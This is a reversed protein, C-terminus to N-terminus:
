QWGEVPSLRCLIMELITTDLQPTVSVGFARKMGDCVATRNMGEYQDIMQLLMTIKNHLAVTDQRNADQFLLTSTGWGRGVLLAKQDVQVRDIIRTLRASDHGFKSTLAWGTAVMPDEAKPEQTFLMSSGLVGCALFLPVLVYRLRFHSLGVIAYMAVFPLIYSFHRYAIFSKRHTGDYFFPSMAYLAMFTVIIFFATAVGQKSARMVRMILLCAFGIFVLRLWLNQLWGSPAITNSRLLTSRPFTETWVEWFHESPKLESLSLGFGRITTNEYGALHFGADAYTRVLVHLGLVLALSAVAYAWQQLPKRHWCLSLFYVPILVVNAYSFWLALGLFAGNLLFHRPSSRDKSLILLLLFPFVSSISHLGFNVTGWPILSPLAFITWVSFALAIRPAFVKKVVHMQVLRVVFDLILASIALSNANTFLKIVLSMWSIPITGGEHPYHILQDYPFRGSAFCDNLAMEWALQDPSQHGPAFFHAYLLRLLTGLLAIIVIHNFRHTAPLRM